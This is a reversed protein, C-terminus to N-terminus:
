VGGERGEKAQILKLWYREKPEDRILRFDNGELLPDHWCVPKYICYSCPTEQNKRYPDIAVEGALIKAASEALTLRLQRRLAQFQSADIVWSDQYFGGDQKLGVPLLESRGTSCSNDMMRIVGADALVLGKTKLSALVLREAEAPDVPGLAPILPDKVSFYLIAGPHALGGALLTANTLAVDLYTLLQIELGHFIGALSLGSRGSKYDIVRLYRQGNEAVGLDIRDIRGHVELTSGDAVKLGLPPLDQGSGFGVELGVPRFVGRRWHLALLGVSRELIRRLKKQLYRYRATSFLIENQLEPALEETVARVLDRCDDKSLAGWDLGGALIREGIKKLAAHFFQGLDPAALQYQPRDKLKLGYAMFHAFPCANFKEVRSVSVQLRQGYLKRAVDALLQEQNVYFLGALIRKLLVLHRPQSLAWNYVGLWIPPIPLGAKAERLKVALYSLARHPDAVFELDAAPLGPPELPLIREKLGPLIEKLRTIVSSPMLARGEEDALPYSIWLYESSRTLATYVLFQEDLLRRRNDPALNLGASQLREREPSTFFGDGGPRAPFVGDSAGLVFSARLNPNRSRDLSGVLVQDLGPPILALQLSELGALLVRAYDRLSIIEEGLAAVMQDLLDVVGKWVQSQERAYELRGKKEAEESWQDLCEAVQLDELLQFLAQSIERVNVAAKASKEFDALAKVGKSRAQNIQDLQSAEQPNLGQDEGLTYRRRFVWPKGDTWHSGRIGHALVYNELQDVEERALPCLDTKLYRFVPDYAWNDLVVELAARILEVLPHFMVTRKADIFLAIGYDTFISSILDRYGEVDRLIVGIERWRYGADRCLRLVERAVGEVEARRNAAAVLSIGPAEKEWVRTPRQFFATELHNIVPSAVFRWPVAPALVMHNEVPIGLEKALALMQEMTQRPSFFIDAEGSPQSLQRSDLCLAVSVRKATKLIAALVRYEQPSFGTFSDIWVLAGQFTPSFALREALLALYDDPHTYKGSLYEELDRYLLALDTLKDALGEGEKKAKLIERQALLDEPTICYAKMETITKALIGAFGPQNAVRHFTRLQQKRRELLQRLVMRQGLEGIPIRAAGGVELLVRYALRRFSFVQARMSGCLESTSTLAYETQFTAQEPVLLILSEGQPAERLLQRIEELCVTTKGSGARGLIFRLSMWIVVEPQLLV